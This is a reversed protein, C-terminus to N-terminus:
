VMLFLLLLGAVVLYMRPLKNEYGAISWHDVTKLWELACAVKSGEKKEIDTM